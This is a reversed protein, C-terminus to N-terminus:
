RPTARRNSNRPSAAPRSTRRRSRAGASRPAPRARSPSRRRSAAPPRRHELGVPVAPGLRQPPREAIREHLRRAPRTRCRGRPHAAAGRPSRCASRRHPELWQGPCRRTDPASTAVLQHRVRPRAQAGAVQAEGQAGAVERGQGVLQDLLQAAVRTRADTVGSHEVGGCGLRARPATRGVDSEPGGARRRQGGIPDTARRATNTSMSDVLIEAANADTVLRISPAMDPPPRPELRSPRRHPSRRRPPGAPSANTVRTRSM